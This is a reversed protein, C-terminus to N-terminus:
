GDSGRPNLVLSFLPHECGAELIGRHRQPVGAAIQLKRESAANEFCQHALSRVLSNGYGSAVSRRSGRDAVAERGTLYRFEADQQL